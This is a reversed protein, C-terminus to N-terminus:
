AKPTLTGVITGIITQIITCTQSAGCCTFGSCSGVSTTFAAEEGAKIMQMDTKSLNSVSQKNLKLKLNTQNPKMM